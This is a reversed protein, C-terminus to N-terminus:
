ISLVKATPCQKLITQSWCFFYIWGLLSSIIRYSSSLDSNGPVCLGLVVGLIISIPLIVADFDWIIRKCWNEKVEILPNDMESDRDNLGYIRMSRVIFSSRGEAEDMM